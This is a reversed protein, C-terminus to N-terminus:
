HVDGVLWTFAPVLVEEPAAGGSLGPGTGDGTEHLRFGHDGFLFLLTRPALSKAHASVATAIEDAIGDLRSALPPGSDQLRAEVVDLKLLDRSGVRVRRLITASRGSWVTDEHDVLGRAQTLADPGYALLSLQAGTNTPLAAWLLFRETCRAYASLEKRVREHVRLGLDFRMGDVLLLQVTKAGHLRAMRSTLQPVDLVM